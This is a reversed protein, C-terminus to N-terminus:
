RRKLRDQIESLTLGKTEFVKIRTFIFGLVCFGAFIWFNGYSGVYTELPLFSKTIAFDIIWSASVTISCAISKIEPAYIEGMITYPLPGFGFCYFLIFSVLAAISIWGYDDMLNMSDLFFYLGMTSLSIIMGASSVLLLRKRGSSEVFFPSVCASFAMVSAVIISAVASDITSGANRFITQNYFLV